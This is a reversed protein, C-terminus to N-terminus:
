FRENKLGEKRVSQYMDVTQEENEMIPLLQVLERFHERVRVGMQTISYLLSPEGYVRITEVLEHKILFSLYQKAKSCNLNSRHMIHTLKLPHRQDLVRLVDVCSELKSRKKCSSGVYEYESYMM